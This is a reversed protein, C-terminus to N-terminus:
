GMAAGGGMAPGGINLGGMYNNLGAMDQGGMQQGGAAGGGAGAPQAVPEWDGQAAGGAATGAAGWDAPGAVAQYVPPPTRMYEANGVGSGAAQPPPQNGIRRAAGFSRHWEQHNAPRATEARWRIPYQSYSVDPGNQGLRQGHGIPPHSGFPWRQSDGYQQWFQEPSTAYAAAAEQEAQPNEEIGALM